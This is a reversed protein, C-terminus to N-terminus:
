SKIRTDLRRAGLLKFSSLGVRPTPVVYEPLESRRTSHVNDDSELCAEDDHLDCQCRQVVLLGLLVPLGKSNPLGVLLCM